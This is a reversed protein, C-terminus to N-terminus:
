AEDNPSMSSIVYIQYSGGRGTLEYDLIYRTYQAFYKNKREMMEEVIAYFDEIADAPLTQAINQLSQKQQAEPLLATNWAVLATSILRHMEDTTDAFQKYPEIFDLLVESMKVSGAPDTLIKHDGLGSQKLRQIMKEGASLSAKSQRQRAQKQKKRKQDRSLKKKAM